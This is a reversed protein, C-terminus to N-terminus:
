FVIRNHSLGPNSAAPTRAEDESGLAEVPPETYTKPVVNSRRPLRSVPNPLLM